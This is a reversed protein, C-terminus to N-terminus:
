FEGSCTIAPTSAGQQFIANEALKECITHLETDFEKSGSLYILESLVCSEIQENTAVRSLWFARFIYEFLLRVLINSSVYNKRKPPSAIGDCINFASFLVAGIYRSRIDGTLPVRQLLHWMEEIYERTYYFTITALVKMYQFLWRGETNVLARMEAFVM